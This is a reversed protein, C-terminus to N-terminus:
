ERMQHSFIYNFFYSPFLKCNESVKGDDLVSVISQTRIMPTKHRTKTCVIYNNEYQQLDNRIDWPRIDANKYTYKPVETATGDINFQVGEHEFLKTVCKESKENRDVLAQRQAVELNNKEETAAVQDEDVIAQGVHQWLRASEWESQDEM